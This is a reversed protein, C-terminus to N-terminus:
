HAYPDIKGQWYLMPWFAFYVSYAVTKGSGTKSRVVMDGGKRAETLTAAQVPFLTSINMKQLSSKIEAPLSEYLVIASEAEAEVGLEDEAVPKGEKARKGQANKKAAELAAGSVAAADTSKSRSAFPVGLSRPAAAIVAAAASPRVVLRPFLPLAARRLM